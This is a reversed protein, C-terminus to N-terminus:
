SVRLQCPCHEWLVRAGPRPGRAWTGFRKEPKKKVGCIVGHYSLPVVSPLRAYVMLWHSLNTAAM